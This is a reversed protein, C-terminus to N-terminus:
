IYIAFILCRAAAAAHSPPTPPEAQRFSLSVRADDTLTVLVHIRLSERVRAFNRYLQCFIKIDHM